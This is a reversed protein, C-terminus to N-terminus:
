KPWFLNNIMLSYHEGNIIIDHGVNNKYFYPAAIGMDM